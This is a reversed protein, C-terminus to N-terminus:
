FFKEERCRKQPFFLSSNAMKGVQPHRDQRFVEREQGFYVLNKEFIKWNSLSQRVQSLVMLITFLVAVSPQAPTGRNAYTDEKSYSVTALNSYTRQQVNSADTAIIDRITINVVRSTECILDSTTNVNSFYEEFRSFEDFDRDFGYRYLTGTTQKTGSITSWNTELSTRTTESGSYRKIHTERINGYTFVVTGSVALTERQPTTTNFTVTKNYRKNTFPHSLFM